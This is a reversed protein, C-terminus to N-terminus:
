NTLILRGTEPNYMVRESWYKSEVIWHLPICKKNIINGCKYEGKTNIKRRKSPRMQQHKLTTYDPKVQNQYSSMM